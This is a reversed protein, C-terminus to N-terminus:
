SLTVHRRGWRSCTCGGAWGECDSYPHDRTHRRREKTRQQPSLRDDGEFRPDSPFGRAALERARTGPVNGGRLLTRKVVRGRGGHRRVGRLGPGCRPYMPFNHGRVLQLEVLRLDRGPYMFTVLRRRSCRTLAFLAVARRSFRNHCRRRSGSDGPDALPTDDANGPRHGDVSIGDTCRGSTARGSAAASGRESGDFCGSYRQARSTRPRVDLTRNTLVGVIDDDIFVRARDLVVVEDSPAPQPHCNLGADTHCRTAM